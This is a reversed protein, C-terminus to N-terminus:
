ENEDLEVIDFEPDEWDDDSYEYDGPNSMHLDEAGARMESCIELAQEEADEYTSFIEDNDEELDADKFEIKFKSM